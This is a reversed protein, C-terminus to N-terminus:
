STRLDSKVSAVSVHAHSGHQKRARFSITTKKVRNLSGDFAEYEMAYANAQDLSLPHHFQVHKKMEYHLNQPQNMKRSKCKCRFAVEREVPNFRRGLVNKLRQYNQLDTRMCESLLKQANGILCM